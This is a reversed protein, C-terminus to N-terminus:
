DWDALELENLEAWAAEDGVEIQDAYEALIDAKLNSKFEKELESNSPNM